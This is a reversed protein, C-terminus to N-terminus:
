MSGRPSPKKRKMYRRAEKVRAAHLRAEHVWETLLDLQFWDLEGGTKIDVYDRLDDWAVPLGKAEAIKRALAKTPEM